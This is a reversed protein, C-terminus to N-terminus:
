FGEWALLGCADAEATYRDYDIHLLNTYYHNVGRVGNDRTWEILYMKQEGDEIDITLLPTSSDAPLLGSASGVVRDDTVCRVTYTVRADAPTDNVGYLTLRRGDPEDFMLCVPQQSRKIYAYALKKTYYYDVIADSIQPWGDILNWWIIGTRRWKSIRFREIFYKKAEAQSIQSMKAFRELSDPLKGDFLTEVQSAMLRNRYSYSGNPDLDMAASHALWDDKPAGNDKFIPYLQDASIFKRLSEPSPCGHYGTESAFHCVTNKYYQGKFYDRPGWLHEESTPKGTRYAEEDIYPSSPLYPRTFDHTKLLQPILERTIINQNPDRPTGAWNFAYDCENDGAWLLLSPHNRLRKVTFVIEPELMDLFRREQPYVACGMGFDQWVLIGKKDCLDFFLDSEYVNGGWCRIINCGLDDAMDLARSVRNIDNSHFADLPVWNTGMCFVRKGNVTFCFEGNGDADTTSTRKLDVTRIGMRQVRSDVLTDGKWLEVTCDYLNQKGANRPWWLQANAVSTSCRGNTHWVRTGMEFRSDGCVGKVVFRFDDLFDEEIHLSFYAMVSASPGNPDVGLTYLFVDDIRNPRKRVISVPKWIGGSVIRPMIDWGYMSSAKRIYLSDYNYALSNSSVPLDYKRAAITAPLIHVLLENEGTRLMPLPLEYTLFMNDTEAICEGNLYIEAVTDIGEFRLVTNEDAQGEFTFRRSYWLHLNELKQLQLTNTGFYPDPILGAREFDREFNGPVQAEVCSPYLSAVEEACVPNVGMARVTHNEAYHLTWVGCLDLKDNLM